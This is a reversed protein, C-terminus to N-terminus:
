QVPVQEVAPLWFTKKQSQATGNLSTHVLHLTKPAHVPMSTKSVLRCFPHKAKASILQSNIVLFLGLLILCLVSCPFACVTDLLKIKTARGESRLLGIESAAYAVSVESPAYCGGLCLVLCDSGSLEFLVELSSVSQWLLFGQRM